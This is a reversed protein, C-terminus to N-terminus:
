NGRNYAELFMLDKSTTQKSFLSVEGRFFKKPLNHYDGLSNGDVFNMFYHIVIM